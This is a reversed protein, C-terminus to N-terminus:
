GAFVATDQHRRPVVLVLTSLAVVAAAYPAIPSVPHLGAGIMPGAALGIGQAIANVGAARAQMTAGARLSLCALNGPVALGLGGGICITAVTFPDPATSVAAAAVGAL